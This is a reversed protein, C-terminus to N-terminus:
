KIEKLRSPAMVTIHNYLAEANRRGNYEYEMQKGKDNKITIKVTPFGKIENGNVTAKINEKTLAQEEYKKTVINTNNHKGGMEEIKEAFKDWEPEFQTCHGCWNAYYLTTEITPM